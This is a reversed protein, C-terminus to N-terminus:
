RTRAGAGPASPSSPPWPSAPCSSSASPAGGPSGGPGASHARWRRPGGIRNMIRRRAARLRGAVDRSVALDRRDVFLSLVDAMQAPVRVRGHIVSVVFDDDRGLDVCMGRVEGESMTTFGGEGNSAVYRDRRDFGESRSGADFADRPRMSDLIGEFEDWSMPAMEGRVRRLYRRGVEVATQPNEEMYDAVADSVTYGPDEASKAYRAVAGRRGTFPLRM